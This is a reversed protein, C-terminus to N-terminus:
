PRLTFLKVSVNVITKMSDFKKLIHDSAIPIHIKTTKEPSINVTKRPCYSHPLNTSNGFRASSCYTVGVPGNISPIDKGKEREIFVKYKKIKIATVHITKLCLSM